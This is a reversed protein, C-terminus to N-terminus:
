AALDKLHFDSATRHFDILRLLAAQTAIVELALVGQMAINHRGSALIKNIFDIALVSHNKRYTRIASSLAHGLDDDDMWEASDMNEVKLLDSELRREALDSGLEAAACVVSMRQRPNLDSRAGWHDLLEIWASIGPHPNTHKLTGGFDYDMEFIYLMGATAAHAFRVLGEPSLKIRRINTASREALDRFPYHGFLSITTATYEIPNEEFGSLLREFIERDGFRAEIIMLTLLLDKAFHAENMMSDFFLGASTLGRSCM